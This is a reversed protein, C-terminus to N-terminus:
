EGIINASDLRKKISHKGLPALLGKPVAVLKMREGVKRQKDPRKCPHDAVQKLRQQVSFNIFLIFILYILLIFKIKTDYIYLCDEHLLVHNTSDSNFGLVQIIHFVFPVSILHSHNTSNTEFVTVHELLPCQVFYTCHIRKRSGPLSLLSFGKVYVAPLIFPIFQHKTGSQRQEM